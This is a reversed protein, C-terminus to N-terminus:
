SKIEKHKTHKRCHKCYKAREMRESHTAKNKTTTYNRRRCDTCEMNIITQSM